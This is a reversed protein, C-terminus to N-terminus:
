RLSQTRDLHHPTSVLGHSLRRGRHFGCGSQRAQFDVRDPVAPPHDRDQRRRRAQGGQRYGRECAQASRGPLPSGRAWEGVALACRADAGVDGVVGIDVPHRRGLHAGDIDIQIIKAKSPYFQRWAFDCGLLLLTDCGMLAHYGGDSGFIGTMGVDYRNDHELFDKARSTRAVPAQLREALAMVQDHAHECGSGGYITIKKGTNLADAIRKLETDNPRTVPRPATCPSNRSM